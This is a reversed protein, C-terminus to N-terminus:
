LFLERAIYNYVLMGEPSLSISDTQFTFWEEPMCPIKKKLMEAIEDGFKEQTEKISIGESKRLSILVYDNWQEEKNLFEKTEPIIGSFINKMYVHNNAINVSRMNTGDYSHASPGAGTYPNGSWYLSNHVSRKGPSAYNSIEYHEWGKATLCTHLFIFHERFTEEDPLQFLNKKIDHHLRTKEEITLGYCSLHSVRFSLIKTVFNELDQLTQYPTGFILDCSVDFSREESLLELARLAMAADHTRNMWALEADNLSQIGLSIRTIGFNKWSEINEKTVNEPNVELTIERIHSLLNFTHFLDFFKELDKETMLGPTGGGFYISITHQHEFITKKFELEQVIADVMKSRYETQTSFHFDCYSCARRCFPYHIYLGHAKM